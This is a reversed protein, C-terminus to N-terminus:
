FSGHAAPLHRKAFKGYEADTMLIHSTLWSNLFGMVELSLNMRGQHFDRQIEVVRNCFKEHEEHHQPAEPYGHMEMWYEETSFHYTAYDILADLVAGLEDRPAGLMIGDYTMNLLSVLHKHHEDFEAIGLEFADSWEMFPM